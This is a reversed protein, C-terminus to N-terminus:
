LLRIIHKDLKFILTLGTGYFLNLLKSEKEM